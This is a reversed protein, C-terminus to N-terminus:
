AGPRVAGSFQQHLYRDLKVRKVKQGTHPAHIMYGHGVYVGVHGLHYFFVLDGPRLDSWRVKKHVKRYIDTTVRPITVGGYRWAGGALGSCDWRHPGNGGYRYWDGIHAYAFKVARAARQQQPPKHKQAPKHQAPKKAAAPQSVTAVYTTGASAAPATVIGLSTAACLVTGAM